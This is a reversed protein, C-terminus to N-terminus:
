MNCSCGAIPHLIEMRLYFVVSNMCDLPIGEDGDLSGFSSDKSSRTIVLSLHPTFRQRCQRSGPSVWFLIGLSLHWFIPATKQVGENLFSYLRGWFLTWITSGKKRSGCEGREFNPLVWDSKPDSDHGHVATDKVELGLMNSCSCSAHQKISWLM